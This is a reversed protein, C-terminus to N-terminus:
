SRRSRTLMPLRCRCERRSLRHKNSRHRSYGAAEGMIPIIPLAERPYELARTAEGGDEPRALAVAHERNQRQAGEAPENGKSLISGGTTGQIQNHWEHRRAGGHSGKDLKIGKAEM